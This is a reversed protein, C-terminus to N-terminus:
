ETSLRKEYQEATLLRQLAEPVDGAAAIEVLWGEEYPQENVLEPAAQLQENVRVIVGDLPSFLDSVTKVSEITGMPQLATATTGVTPLDVYVIDGLLCQAYDTIGVRVVGDKVLVAWEHEETYCLGQRIDSM